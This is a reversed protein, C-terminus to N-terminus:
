EDFCEKCAEKAYLKYAECGAPRSCGSAYPHKLLWLMVCYESTNHETVHMLDRADGRLELYKLMPKRSRPSKIGYIEVESLINLMEALEDGDWRVKLSPYLQLFKGTTLYKGGLFQFDMQDDKKSVLLRRSANSLAVNRVSGSRGVILLRRIVALRSSSTVVVSKM